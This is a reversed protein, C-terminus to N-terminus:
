KNAERFNIIAEIVEWHEWPRKIIKDGDADITVCGLDINQNLCYEEFQTWSLTTFNWVSGDLFLNGTM